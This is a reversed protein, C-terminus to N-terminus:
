CFEVEYSTSNKDQELFVSTSEITMSNLHLDLKNIKIM